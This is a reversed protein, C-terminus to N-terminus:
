KIPSFPIMKFTLHLQLAGVVISLVEPIKFCDVLFGLFGTFSMSGYGSISDVSLGNLSDIAVQMLDHIVNNLIIPLVVIFLTTALLKIALFFLLRDAVIKAIGTGISSVIVAIAAFM